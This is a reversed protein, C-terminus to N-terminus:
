YEIGKTAPIGQAYGHKIEVIDSVTDALDCISQPADRGTMIVSTQQASAQQIVALVEETDLWGFTLPYTFEDLVVLDYKGGCLADTAVKWADQAVRRDEEANEPDLVFGRGGVYCEIGLEHLAAREGSEWEGAKIFQVVCTRLGHGYARLIMGMATTTKGKGNGTIVLVRGKRPAGQKANMTM